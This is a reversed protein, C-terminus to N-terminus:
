WFRFSYNQHDDAMMMSRFKAHSVIEYSQPHFINSSYNVFPRFYPSILKIKPQHRRTEELGNENCIYRMKKMETKEDCNVHLVQNLNSKREICKTINNQVVYCTTTWKTPYNKKIITTVHCTHDRGNIKLNANSACRM